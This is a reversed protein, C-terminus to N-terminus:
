ILIHFRAAPWHKAIRGDAEAWRIFKFLVVFIALEGGDEHAVDELLRLMQGGDAVNDGCLFFVVMHKVQAVPGLAATPCALIHVPM